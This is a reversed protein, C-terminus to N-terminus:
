VRTDWRCFRKQLTLLIYNATMGIMALLVIAAFM